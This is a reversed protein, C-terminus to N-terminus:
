PNGSYSQRDVREDVLSVQDRQCTMRRAGGRGSSVGSRRRGMVASFPSFTPILPPELRLDLRRGGRVRVRVREWCTSPSLPYSM